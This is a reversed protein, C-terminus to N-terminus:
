HVIRGLSGGLLGSAASLFLSALAECQADTLDCPEVVLWPEGQEDIGALVLSPDQQDRLLTLMKEPSLTKAM